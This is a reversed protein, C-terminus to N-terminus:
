SFVKYKTQEVASAQRQLRDIEAAILAGAIVLSHIEDGGAQYGHKSLLGWPDDATGRGLQDVVVADTGDCALTAAVVALTGYTHEDDHEPTYGEADIQRQREQTILEAGNM